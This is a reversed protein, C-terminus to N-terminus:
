FLTVAAGRSAAVGGAMPVIWQMFVDIGALAPVDPLAVPVTTYGNGPGTGSTPLLLSLLNEDPTVLVTIGGIVTGPPAQTAAIALIASQGGDAGALGIKWTPNGLYPPALAIMAPPLFPFVPTPVGYLGPNPPVTESHLTPRDFPPLGQAVRPDTLAGSLFAVLAAQQQPNLGLPNILPDQNVHFAGGQNYFGVVQQLTQFQGTHMFRNRLGVNRLIATKFRGRDAFVGTVDQRGADEAIPRLGINHFQNDSFLPATHCVACQGPGTFIMLGAMQQQTLAAPNGANFLDWPTQDPVLVRQYTALAFAIREATIQPIM